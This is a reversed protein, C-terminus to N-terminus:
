STRRTWPSLDNPKLQLPLGAVMLYVQTATQAIRQNVQGLLDRFARGLPTDPVLGWGVENSVCIITQPTDGVEELVREMMQEIGHGCAGQHEAALLWNSVWLTLCDVIVVAADHVLSLAHDLHKPEEITVWHPPREARHRAIRAQMEADQAEATAIFCVRGSTSAEWERALRVAFASKGTRAGGLILIFEGHQM